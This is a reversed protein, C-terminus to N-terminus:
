HIEGPALVLSGPQQLADYILSDEETRSDDENSGANEKLCNASNAGLIATIRTKDRFISYKPRFTSFHEAKKRCM